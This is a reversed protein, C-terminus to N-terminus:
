RRKKRQKFKSKFKPAKPAKGMGPMGGGMMARPDMGAAGGMGSLSKLKSLIGMGSMQKGMQSVMEFGKVLQAVDAPQSGSGRSIRRRRSNDLLDVDKREDKTMSKIIAETRNIEKDDIDMQSIQNGIGPLMGLLSKMSGMKRIMNLQNLFDDMTMKGKAMKEQLEQAEEESVQQQAKEVLSVVDGM